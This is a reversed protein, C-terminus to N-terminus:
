QMNSFVNDLVNGVTTFVNGAGKQIKKADKRDVPSLIMSMGVGIAAGTAVGKLFSGTNRM